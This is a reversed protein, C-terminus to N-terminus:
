DEELDLQRIYAAGEGLRYAADFAEVTDYTEGVKKLVRAVRPAVDRGLDNPRGDSGVLHAEIFVMLRHVNPHVWERM